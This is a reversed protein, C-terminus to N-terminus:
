LAVRYIAYAILALVPLFLLASFLFPHRDMWHAAEHLTRKALTIHCQM